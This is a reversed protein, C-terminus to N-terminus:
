YYNGVKRRHVETKKTPDAVAGADVSCYTVWHDATELRSLVKCELNAIAAKLIPSGNAAQLTEVGEFRDAGPPFRKLFHKMVPNAEKEGLVNLVFTDGVQMLSEIARDKAIAVTLGLPEFSAQAVWSAIMASRADSQGAATVVYLGSSLKGLAKAVPAPMAKLKAISEKKGLAQALDTGAEEYQQYCQETPEAKMRLNFAPEIGLGLLDRTLKDVPEDNGGFSEAIAVKHKKPNLESFVVNLTERAAASASDPCMIVVGASSGLIARLEAHDVMTIDVMETAINAKVIGRALQQSLRDCFGYSDMYLVAVSAPAKGMNASWERYDEVLESVNYRLMPGHGNCITDYEWDKIKRLATLVSRSNPKMLCDYYFRYHPLMAKVDTDWPDETCYHSGFADCTYMIGTARDLSFMSDPWHLNPALVFELNHGGGLEIVDGGKVAKGNFDKRMLGQLFRISVKSGTVIVDPYIDVLDRILGSHDPETHSVVIYDIKQRGGGYLADRIRDLYLAGFKEHSSDILAVKDDGFILYSNYTTGKELAFEIDFRDRDWDLSRIAVTDQAITLVQTQLRKTGDFMKLESMKYESYPGMVPAAASAAVQDIQRTAPRVPAVTARPQRAPGQCVSARRQTGCQFALSMM